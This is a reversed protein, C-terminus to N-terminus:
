SGGDHVPRTAFDFFQLRTEAAPRDIYYIGRELVVFTWEVVGDLVKVPQGGSTALRWLAARRSRLRRTTSTPAM